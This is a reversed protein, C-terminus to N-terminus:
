SYLPLAPMRMRRSADGGFNVRTQENSPHNRQRPDHRSITRDVQPVHRHFQHKIMKRSVNHSFQEVQKRIYRLFADSSWRGLMMITYVPVEGLYMSMAAGSRISHTGIEGKQINIVDNGVAEVAAELANVLMRSTIHELKGNSWVSSVPTGDNSGPYRRIRKVIAAWSRVPCLVADGSALQNVTDAKEDKKQMEFTISVCEARELDLHSHPIERGQRFFRVCRLRLIDTRRKEAQPVKLYECSRCAFFFGGIALQAIARQTETADMHALEKLVCCPLAKQQKVPPDKNRYARFQRSLLRALEGDEDLTPNGRDNDRFTAAVYSIANRVTTEALTEYSPGSFRAERMAQAFAGLIRIRQHKQCHDLFIDDEFGCMKAYECWRDWARAQEEHTGRTVAGQRAIEAASLDAM